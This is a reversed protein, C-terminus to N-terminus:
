LSWTSQVIDDISVTSYRGISVMKNKQEDIAEKKSIDEIWEGCPVKNNVTVYTCLTTCVWGVCQAPRGSGDITYV